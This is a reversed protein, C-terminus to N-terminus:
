AIRRWRLTRTLPEGEAGTTALQILLEDGEVRLNRTLTLGVSEPALAGLLRQTVQGTADDVTYHGFYADYGDRGATNNAAPRRVVSEASAERTRRMFQAAFHGARDYILWAVPDAGLFPDIRLEGRADRDERLVLEWTGILSRSLPVTSPPPPASM